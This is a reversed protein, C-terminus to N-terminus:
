PLVLRLDRQHEHEISREAHRPARYVQALGGRLRGHVYHLVLLRNADEREIVLELPRHRKPRDGAVAVVGAFPDGGNPRAALRQEVEWQLLGWERQAGVA